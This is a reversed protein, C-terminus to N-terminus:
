ASCEKEELLKKVAFGLEQFTFPKALFIFDNGDIETDNLNNAAYGSMLIVKVDPNKKRIEMMLETGKMGPMAIDTILIDIKCNSDFIKLAEIASDAAKIMYGKNRLINAMLTRVATEDEVILISENGTLDKVNMTSSSNNSSLKGEIAEPLLIAFTTGRNPTSKVLIYGDTQKIIGYATSLGLGMSMGMNKTSFFPDFIKHMNDTNIGVGNDSLEILVYNGCRIKESKHPNFYNQLFINTDNINVNTTKIQMLGSSSMADRANVIINILVQELQGQDVKINYLGNGHDISLEIDEGILRRILHSLEMLVETINIVRPKLIQKRSLALLQRVLNAARNANQKIQMIDAFSSDGKPHRMLLLDCFGIMATLLNNFDHAIGGSLQGIAQMKQSHIFNMELNKQETIDVLICIVSCCQKNNYDECIYLMFSMDLNKISTQIKTKIGTNLVENIKLKIEQSNNFSDIANFKKIKCSDFNEVFLEKFENNCNLLYGNNDLSIMPIAIDKLCLQWAITNMPALFFPNIFHYSLNNNKYIYDICNNSIKYLTHVDNSNKEEGMTKMKNLVSNINGELLGNKKVNLIEETKSNCCVIKNDKDTVLIPIKQDIIALAKSQNDKIAFYKNNYILYQEVKYKSDCYNLLDDSKNMLMKSISALAVNKSDLALKYFNNYSKININLKNSLKINNAYYLRGSNNFFLLLDSNDFISTFLKNNLIKCYILFFIMSILIAVFFVFSQLFNVSFYLMFLSAGAFVMMGVGRIVLM